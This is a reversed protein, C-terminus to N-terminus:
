PGPGSPVNQPPSLNPCIDEQSLGATQLKIIEVNRNFAEAMTAPSIM